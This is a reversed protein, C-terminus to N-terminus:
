ATEHAKCELDNWDVIGTFRFGPAHLVGNVAVTAESAARVGPQDQDTVIVIEASPFKARFLRAVTPLNGCSMAAVGRYAPHMRVYSTVSAFGEGIALCEPALDRRWAGVCAFVGRTKAAVLFRKSGDGAIGQLNVIAGSEDRLPVLVAHELVGTGSYAFRETMRLGDPPLRKALLYPHHEVASTAASWIERAREAARAQREGDDIARINDPKRPAAFIPKAERERAAGRFGCRHCLWTAGDPEILLALATDRSRHKVLACQPCALRQEGFRMHRPDIGARRLADLNM